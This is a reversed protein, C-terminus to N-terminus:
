TFAVEDDVKFVFVTVSIASLEDDQYMECRLETLSPSRSREVVAEIVSTFSEVTQMESCCARTANNCRTLRLATIGSGLTEVENLVAYTQCKYM